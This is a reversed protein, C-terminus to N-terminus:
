RWNARRYGNDGVHFLSTQEPYAGVTYMHHAWVVFGSRVIQRHIAWCQLYGFIPKRSFPRLSTASIIGVRSSIIYVEPHRFFLSTNTCSGSRVARLTLLVRFDLTATM